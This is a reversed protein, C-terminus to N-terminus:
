KESPNIKFLCVFHFALKHKGNETELYRMEPLYGKHKTVKCIVDLAAHSFQDFMCVETKGDAMTDLHDILLNATANFSSM